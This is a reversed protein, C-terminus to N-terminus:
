GVVSLSLIQRIGKIDHTTVNRDDIIGKPETRAPRSYQNVCIGKMPMALYGDNTQRINKTVGSQAVVKVM